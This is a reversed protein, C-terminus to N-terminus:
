ETVACIAEAITQAWLESLEDINGATVLLGGDTVAAMPVGLAIVNTGVTGRSLEGRRGGIGSAPAIGATTLQVSRAIYRPDACVLADIALICEAGTERAVGRVLAATDVGTRAAVDTEIAALSYRSGKHPKIWRAAHAGLSDCVVDPNGLGAALVAGKAPLMVGLARKLVAATMPKAPDGEITIYRGQPKGALAATRASLRVDTVSVGGIVRKKAGNAANGASNMQATELILDTRQM